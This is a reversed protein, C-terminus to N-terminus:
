EESRGGPVKGSPGFNWSVDGRAAEKGIFQDIRQRHMPDHHISTHQFLNEDVEAIPLEYVHHPRKRSAGDRLVKCRLADSQALALVRFRPQFRAVPDTSDSPAESSTVHEADIVAMRRGFEKVLAVHAPRKEGILVM